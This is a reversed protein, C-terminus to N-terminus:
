QMFNYFRWLDTGGETYTRHFSFAQAAREDGSIAMVLSLSGAGKKYKGRADCRKERSVKGNKRDQTELKYNSEDFDVIDRTSEGLMGDPYDGYWYRDQKYLNLPLYACDSTTSGTKRFLGLRFEARVIQSQSYPANGPNRNNIYARVENIYAKPRVLRFLALNVLDQGHVERESISNGTPRKPLVNGELNYQEWWRKCTNLCPFKHQHRLPALWAANMDDGNLWMALVQERMEISYSNGGRSPHPKTAIRTGNPPRVHHPPPRNCGSASNM